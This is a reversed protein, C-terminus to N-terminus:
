EDNSGDALRKKLLEKGDEARATVRDTLGRQMFRDLIKLAWEGKQKSMANRDNGFSFNLIIAKNDNRYYNM